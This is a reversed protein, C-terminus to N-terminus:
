RAQEAEILGLSRRLAALFPRARPWAEAEADLLAAARASDGARAVHFALAARMGPEPQRGTAAAERLEAELSQRARAAGAADPGRLLEYLGREHGGAPATACGSVLLSLVLVARRM